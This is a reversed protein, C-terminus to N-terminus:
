LVLKARKNAALVFFQIKEEVFYLREYPPFLEDVTEARVCAAVNVYRSRIRRKNRSVKCSKKRSPIRRKFNIRKSETVKHPNKCFLFYGISASNSLIRCIPPIDKKDTKIRASPKSNRRETDPNNIILKGIQQGIFFRALPFEPRTFRNFVIKRFVHQGRIADIEAPVSDNVFIDGSKADRCREQRASKERSISM